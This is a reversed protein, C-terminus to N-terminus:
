MITNTKGIILIFGGCILTKIPFFIRVKGLFEWFIM